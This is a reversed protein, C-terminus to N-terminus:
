WKGQPCATVCRTKGAPRMKTRAMDRWEEPRFSRRIWAWLMPGVWGLVCGCREPDHSEEGVPGCSLVFLPLDVGGVEPQSVVSSPCQMCTRFQHLRVTRPARVCGIWRAAGKVKYWIAM